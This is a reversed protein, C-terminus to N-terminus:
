LRGGKVLGELRMGEPAQELCRAVLQVTTRVDALARHAGDVRLELKAALPQLSYSPEGPLTVKALAQSCWTTAPPLEVGVRKAEARLVRVDYAANHAVLHPTRTLMGALVELVRRATPKGRVMARTIGHVQTAGRPIPCEPDVLSSWEGLIRGSSLEVRAVALEVLRPAKGLGTTETDLVLVVQPEMAPSPVTATERPPEELHVHGIEEVVDEAPHLEAPPQLALRARVRERAEAYLQQQELTLPPLLDLRIARCIERERDSYYGSM